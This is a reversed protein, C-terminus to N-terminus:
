LQIQNNIIIKAIDRHINNNSQLHTSAWKLPNSKITTSESKLISYGCSLTDKTQICYDKIDKIKRTCEGQSLEDKPDFIKYNICLIIDFNPNITKKLTYQIM